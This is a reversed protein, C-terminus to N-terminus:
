RRRGHHAQGRGYGGRRNLTKQGKLAAMAVKGKFVPSRNRRPRRAM